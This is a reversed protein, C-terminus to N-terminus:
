DISVGLDNAIDGLLARSLPWDQLLRRKKMKMMWYVFLVASQRFFVQSFYRENIKESLFAHESLFKSVSELLNEDLFREYTDYVILSSKQLLPRLGTKNVYLADLGEAIGHEQLPGHNILKTAHSFFDDTTEILAMSKAVTRHVEPHIEKKAKYIADHTLEAHAHQLLTRIQVECPTTTPITVEKYKLENAPRLIYHVSQYSFLLPDTFKDQIFHKCNDFHWAPNNNIAACITNIDDTLLVVFRVGVKDEIQYYPDTYSKNPRHFAKDLLSEDAKLRPRDINIKLFTDLNKGQEILSDKIQEIIFSGWASYIPKEKNWLSILESENM